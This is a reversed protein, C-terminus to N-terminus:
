KIKKSTDSNQNAIYARLVLFPISAAGALVFFYNRVYDSSDKVSGIDFYRYLFVTIVISCVFCVLIFRKTLFSYFIVSVILTIDIWHETFLTFGYLSIKYISIKYVYCLVLIVLM